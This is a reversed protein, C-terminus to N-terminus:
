LNYEFHDDAPIFGLEMLNSIEDSNFKTPDIHIYIIDHEATLPYPDYCRKELIQLGMIIKKM